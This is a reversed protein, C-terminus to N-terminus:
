HGPLGCGGQFLEHNRNGRAVVFALLDLIEERTLQNLLGEPM